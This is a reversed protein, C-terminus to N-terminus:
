LTGPTLLNCDAAGADDLCNGCEASDGKNTYSTPASGDCFCKSGDIGCSCIKCIAADDLATLHLFCEDVQGNMENAARSSDAGIVFETARSTFNTQSTASGTAQGNLFAEIENASADYRCAVHEFENWAYVAGTYVDSKADVWCRARKPNGTRNIRYGDNGDWRGMVTSANDASFRTWCGMTFDDEGSLDTALVQGDALNTSGSSAVPVAYDGRKKNTGDRTLSAGDTDLDLSGAGGSSVRNATGDEEMDWWYDIEASWDSSAPDAGGSATIIISNGSADAWLLAGMLLMALALSELLFALLKVV